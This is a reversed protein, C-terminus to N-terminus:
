GIQPFPHIESTGLDFFLVKERARSLTGCLFIKWMFLWSLKLGEKDKHIQHGQHQRIRRQQFSWLCTFPLSSLCDIERSPPHIALVTVVCDTFVRIVNKGGTPFGINAIVTCNQLANKLWLFQCCWWIHFVRVNSHISSRSCFKEM